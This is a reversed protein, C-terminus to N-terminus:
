VGRRTKAELNEFCIETTAIRMKSDRNASFFVKSLFSRTVFWQRRCAGGARSKASHAFIEGPIHRGVRVDVVEDLTLAEV